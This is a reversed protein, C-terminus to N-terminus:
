KGISLHYKAIAQNTILNSLNPEVYSDFMSFATSTSYRIIIPEACCCCSMHIPGKNTWNHQVAVQWTPRQRM